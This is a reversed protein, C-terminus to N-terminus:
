LSQLNSADPQVPTGKQPSPTILRTLSCHSRLSRPPAVQAESPSSPPVRVQPASQVNTVAPQVPVPSVSGRDISIPAEEATHVPPLSVTGTDSVNGGDDTMSLTSTKKRKSSVPLKAPRTGATCPM